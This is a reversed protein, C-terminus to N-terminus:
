CHYFLSFLICSFPRGHAMKTQKKKSPHCDIQIISTKPHSDSSQFLCARLTLLTEKKMSNYEYILYLMKKNNNGSKINSNNSWYTSSHSLREEYLFFRVLKIFIDGGVTRSFLFISKLIVFHHNSCRNVSSSNAVVINNRIKRWVTNKIIIKWSYVVKIDSWCYSNLKMFVQWHVFIKYNEIRTCSYFIAFNEDLNRKM